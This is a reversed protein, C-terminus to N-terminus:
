RLFLVLIISLTAGLSSILVYPVKVIEEQKRSLVQTMIGLWVYFFLATLLGYLFFHTPLLHMVLFLQGYLITGFLGYLISERISLQQLLFYDIQLWSVMLLMVFFVLWAPLQLLVQFGIVFAALLFLAIVYLYRAIRPLSYAQYAFSRQWFLYLNELWIWTFLPLAVFLGTLLSRQDTYLFIGYGAAWIVGLLPFFRLRTKIPYGRGLFLLGAVLLILYFGIFGYLLYPGAQSANIRDLFAPRSLVFLFLFGIGSLLFSTFRLLLYM